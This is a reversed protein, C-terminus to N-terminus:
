KVCRVSLKTAPFRHQINSTDFDLSYPDSTGARTSSWFEAVESPPFPPPLLPAVERSEDVLSALERVSPLRFGRDTCAAEAEAFSMLGPLSAIQWLVRTRVDLATGGDVKYRAIPSTTPGGRVCRVLHSYEYYGQNTVFVHGEFYDVVFRDQLRAALLSLSDTWQGLNGHSQFISSNLFGADAPGLPGYDLLTLTEIRTPLRWDTRGGVRLAACYNVAEDYSVRDSGTNRSWELGTTKDTVTDATLDYNSLRPSAAPLPWVAFRRDVAKSGGPDRGEVVAEGDVAADASITADKNPHTTEDGTGGESAAGADSPTLLM